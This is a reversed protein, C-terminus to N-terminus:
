DDGISNLLDKYNKERMSKSLQQVATINGNEASEATRMDVNARLILKGRRINYAVESDPDDAEAKFQNYDYDFYMAMDRLSYGLASLRQLEAVTEETLPYTVPHIM